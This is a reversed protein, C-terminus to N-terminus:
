TEVFLFLRKSNIHTNILSEMKKNSYIKFLKAKNNTSFNRIILRLIKQIKNELCM